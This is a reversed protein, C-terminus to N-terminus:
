LQCQVEWFRLNKKSTQAEFVTLQNISSPAKPQLAVVVLVELDKLQLVVVVLAVTTATTAIQRTVATRDM